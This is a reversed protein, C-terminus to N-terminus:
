FDVCFLLIFCIEQVPLQKKLGAMVWDGVARCVYGAPLAKAPPTYVGLREIGASIPVATM